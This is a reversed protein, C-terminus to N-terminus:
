LFLYDGVGSLIWGPEALCILGWVGQSLCATDEGLPGFGDTKKKEGRVSCLDWYHLGVERSRIILSAHHNGERSDTKRDFACECM